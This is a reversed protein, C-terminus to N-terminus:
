FIVQPMWDWPPVHSGMASVENLDKLVSMQLHVLHRLEGQLEQPRTLVAVSNDLHGVLVM